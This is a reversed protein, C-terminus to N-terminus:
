CSRLSGLRATDFILPITFSSKLFGVNTVIEKKFPIGLEKQSLCDIKRAQDKPLVLENKRKKSGDKAQILLEIKNKQLLKQIKEHGIIVKGSKRALAISSVIRRLIIADIRSILNKTSSKQKDKYEIFGNIKELATKSALVYFEKGEFEHYLDPTYRDDPFSIFRIMRESPYVKKTISCFKKKVVNESKSTSM